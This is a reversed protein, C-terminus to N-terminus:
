TLLTHLPSPPAAHPGVPIEIYGTKQADNIHNSPTSSLTSQGTSFDLTLGCPQITSPLRYRAHQEKNNSDGFSVTNGNPMSIINAFKTKKMSHCQLARPFPSIEFLLHGEDVYFDDIAGTTCICWIPSSTLIAYIAPQDIYDTDECGASIGYIIVRKPNPNFLVAMVHFTFLCSVKRWDRTITSWRTNSTAVGTNFALHPAFCPSCPLRIALPPWCGHLLLAAVLGIGNLLGQIMDVFLRYFSLLHEFYHEHRSPPGSCLHVVQSM